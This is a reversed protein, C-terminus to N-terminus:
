FYEVEPHEELYEKYEQASELTKVRAMYRGNRYLDYFTEKEGTKVLVTSSNRDEEDLPLLEENEEEIERIEVDLNFDYEEVKELRADPRFYKIYGLAANEAQEATWFGGKTSGSSLVYRFFKYTKM